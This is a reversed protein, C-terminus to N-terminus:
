SFEELSLRTSVLPCVSMRLFPLSPRVSLCVHRLGYASKTLRRFRIPYFCELVLNSGIIERNCTELAADEGTMTAHIEQKWVKLM